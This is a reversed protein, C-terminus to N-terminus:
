LREGVQQRVELTLAALRREFACRAQESAIAEDSPEAERSGGIGAAQASHRAAPDMAPDFPAGHSVRVRAFPWPVRFRDWTRLARMPHAAMGVPVLRRGTREAVYLAGPKV